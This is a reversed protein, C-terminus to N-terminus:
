TVNYSGPKQKPPPPVRVPWQGHTCRGLDSECQLWLRVRRPVLTLHVTLTPLMNGKSAIDGM